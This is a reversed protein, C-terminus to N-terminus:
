VAAILWLLLTNNGHVCSKNELLPNFSVSDVVCMLDFKKQCKIGNFKWVGCIDLLFCSHPHNVQQTVCQTEQPGCLVVELPWKLEVPQKKQEVDWHQRLVAWHGDELEQREARHRSGTQWGGVMLGRSSPAAFVRCQSLLLLLHTAEVSVVAGSGCWKAVKCCWPHLSGPPFRPTRTPGHDQFCSNPGMTGTRSELPLCVHKVCNTGKVWWVNVQLCLCLAILMLSNLLLAVDCMHNTTLQPSVAKCSPVNSNLIHTNLLTITQM